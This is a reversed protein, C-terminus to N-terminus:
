FGLRLLIKTLVFNFVIIMIYCYAVAKTTFKGVGLSGGEAKFGQYCCIIGIIVSFVFAKIIGSLFDRLAVIDLTNHFYYIANTAGEWSVALYGGFIGIVGSIVVLIPLVIVCAIIRSVVFYELPDVGMTRTALIQESVNMTSLESTIKAGVKGSFVISTLVPSLERLLSIAVLAAVFEKAGFRVLAFYGQLGLVMGTTLSTISVIVISEFGQEYIQRLVDFFRVKGKAIFSFVKILFMLISGTEQVIGLIYKGIHIIIDTIKKKM